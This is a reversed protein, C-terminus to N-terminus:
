RGTDAPKKKDRCSSCATEARDAREALVVEGCRNCVVYGDAAGPLSRTSSFATIKFLLADPLTLIQRVSRDMARKYETLEEPSATRAVIKRELERPLGVAPNFLAIRLGDQVERDASFRAFRYVHKGRDEIFLNNKGLTCGTLCQVADVASTANEVVAYFHWSSVKSIGLERVAIRSARYGVALEPCLHGHFYVLSMLDVAGMLSGSEVLVPGPEARGPVMDERVRYKLVWRSRSLGRERSERVLALNYVGGTTMVLFNSNGCADRAVRCLELVEYHKKRWVFGLPCQQRNDFQVSVEEQIIDIDDNEIRTLIQLIDM